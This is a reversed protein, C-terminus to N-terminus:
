EILRRRTAVEAARECLRVLEEDTLEAWDSPYATLRRRMPPSRCEFALWAPKTTTNRWLQEVPISLLETASPNVEWASWQRGGADAFERLAM